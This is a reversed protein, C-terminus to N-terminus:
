GFALYLITGCCFVFGIMLAIDYRELKLNYTLYGKILKIKM